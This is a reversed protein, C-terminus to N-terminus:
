DGVLGRDPRAPLKRLAGVDVSDNPLLPMGAIQKGAGLDLLIRRVSPAIVAIRKAPSKFVLSKGGAASAVTVPYLEAQAGTPESREGCAAGVLVLLAAAAALLAVRGM